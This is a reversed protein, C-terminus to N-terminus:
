QQVLGLGGVLDAEEEAEGRRDQGSRSAAFLLIAINTRRHEDLPQRKLVKEPAKVRKKSAQASAPEGNSHNGHSSATAAVPRQRALRPDEPVHMKKSRKGHRKLDEEEDLNELPIHRTKGIVAAGSSSSAVAGPRGSRHSAAVVAHEPDRSSSSVM